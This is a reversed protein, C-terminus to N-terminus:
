NFDHGNIMFIKYALTTDTIYKRNVRIWDKNINNKIVNFNEQNLFLDKSSETTLIIDVNKLCLDFLNDRELQTDLIIKEEKTLPSHKIFVANLDENNSVYGSDNLIIVATPICGKVPSVPNNTISKPYYIDNNPTTM